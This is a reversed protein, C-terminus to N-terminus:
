LKVKQQYPGHEPKDCPNSYTCGCAACYTLTFEGESRSVVVHYGCKPCESDKKGEWDKSGCNPCSHNAM